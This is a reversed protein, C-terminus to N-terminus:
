GSIPGATGREVFSVPVVRVQAPRDFDNMREVLVQVTHRALEQVNQAVTSLRYSDLGAHQIDDFGVVRIDEPVRKQFRHRLADIFGLAIMDTACFVGDPIGRSRNLLANAAQQGSEYSDTSTNCLEVDGKRRPLEKLADVFADCRAKGSFNSIHPGVFAFRTVGSQILRQAAMRGGADNDSNVVDAGDLEAARNVMAVPIRRNVYERALALPPSGSTMIVGAIRYSLLIQLSHAIQDADDANMLIPLFGHEGLYHALPALLKVRFPNALGSTVVGVFSSRGQIMNRANFDVQYGLKEAAQMVLTKTKGSISAGPTFARSVASRSVGALKAVDEATAWSKDKDKEKDNM